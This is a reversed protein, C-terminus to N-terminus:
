TLIASKQVKQRKTVTSIGDQKKNCRLFKQKKDTPNQSPVLEVLIGRESTFTHKCLRCDFHRSIKV